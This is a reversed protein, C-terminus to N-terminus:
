NNEYIGEGKLAVMSELCSLDKLENRRILVISHNRAFKNFKELARASRFYGKVEIYLIYDPLYFDPTYTMGEELEFTEIEYEWKIGLKDLYEAVRKEWSSRMMIGKYEVRKGHSPIRGYMPNNSGKMRKSMFLKIEEKSMKNESKRGANWVNAKREATWSAKINLKHEETFSKNKLAKSINRGVKKPRTYGKPYDRLKAKNGIRLKILDSVISAQPFKIKYDGLKLGIHYRNLHPQTIKEHKLWAGLFVFTFFIEM